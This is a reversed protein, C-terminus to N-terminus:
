GLFCAFGRTLPSVNDRQSAVRSCVSPLGETLQEDRRVHFKCCHGQQYRKSQQRLSKSYQSREEWDFGRRWKATFDNDYSVIQDLTRGFGRM